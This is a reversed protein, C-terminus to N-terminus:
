EEHAGEHRAILTGEQARHLTIACNILGIHTFAQPYNGLQEGTEPDLEESFLGLTGAFKLLQEFRLRAEEIRGLYSLTDILWYACALFGGEKGPLGDVASEGSVAADAGGERASERYRYVLANPAGLVRKTAEVTSAVRPDSWPLFGVLPLRLSSADLVDSGYAQVFSQLKDNYGHQEVDAHITDACERWQRVQGHHGHHEAIRCARDLAVWCMARSYVFPRPRGRVEWIGRDDDRWHGEVYDAIMRAFARLDRAPGRDRGNHRFGEHRLYTYAADLVEGYVDMQRQRAAGNGIRVPRSGRYGELHDLSQETLQGDSEGRIGYMIRLDDANSLRLDHLFHFYDRAEDFYGLHALAELTLSSDRLWTYRYDWNRVGGIVEPLSTTPAAVIAGTPEFTCLKLTLASRIVAQQYTGNYRCTASWMRWYGRTEDLDTPFAHSALSSLLAQAEAADRAYNVAAVLGQGAHLRTRVSLVGDQLAPALATGDRIDVLTPLRRVLFVLYRGGAELIAGFADDQRLPTTVSARQRAYDFTAKLTIEVESHGELCTLIRDIRHAAAVDNHTDGERTAATDKADPRSGDRRKDRQRIPMFDVLRLRSTDDQFTTELINTGPLYTMASHAAEHPGVRFYGGRDADLLRCFVAPSDFHPLCCWDISGDPGVLAATRCDGIIGYDRIPRYRPEAGTRTTAAVYESSHM